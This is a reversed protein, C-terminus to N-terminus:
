YNGALEWNRLEGQDRDQFDLYPLRLIFDSFNYSMFKLNFLTVDLLEHSSYTYVTPSLLLQLLSYCVGSLFTSCETLCLM